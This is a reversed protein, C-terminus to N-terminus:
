GDAEFYGGKGYCEPCIALPDGELPDTETEDYVGDGGCLWCDCWLLESGCVDSTKSQEEEAGDVM